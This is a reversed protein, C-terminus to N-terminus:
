QQLAALGFEERDDHAQEILFDEHALSAGLAPSLRIDSSKRYAFATSRGAPGPAGSIFKAANRYIGCFRGM